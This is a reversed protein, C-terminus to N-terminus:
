QFKRPTVSELDFSQVVDVNGLFSQFHNVFQKAVQAGEYRVGQEDNVVEIRSRHARGKLMYNFFKSNKDGDSLWDIKAKQLLLKEEDKRTTNYEQLIIAEQKKLTANHPDQDVQKQIIQLKEKWEIFKEFINGFSGNSIRAELGNLNIPQKNNDQFSSQTFSTTHSM